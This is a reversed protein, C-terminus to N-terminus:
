ICTHVTFCSMMRNMDSSLLLVVTMITFRQWMIYYLEISYPTCMIWVTVYSMTYLLGVSNLSVVFLNKCHQLQALLYILEKNKCHICTCVFAYNYCFMSKEVLFTTIFSLPIALYIETKLCVKFFFTKYLDLNQFQIINDERFHIKKSCPLCFCWLLQDNTHTQTKDDEFAYLLHLTSLSPSKAIM